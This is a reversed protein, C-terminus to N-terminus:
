RRGDDKNRIGFCLLDRDRNRSVDEVDMDKATINHAQSKPTTYQAIFFIADSMYPWVYELQLFYLASNKYAIKNM